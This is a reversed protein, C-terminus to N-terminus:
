GEFQESQLRESTREPVLFDSVKKKKEGKQSDAGLPTDDASM